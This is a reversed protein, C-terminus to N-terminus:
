VWGPTVGGGGPPAHPSGANDTMENSLEMDRINFYTFKYDTAAKERATLKREIGNTVDIISKLIQERHKLYAAVELPKTLPDAIQQETPLYFVRARRDKVLQIVYKDKADIDKITGIATPDALRAITSTNDQYLKITSDSDPFIEENINALGKARKACSNVVFLESDATSNGRARQRQSKWTVTDKNFKIIFGTTSRRTEM